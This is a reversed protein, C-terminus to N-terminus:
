ISPQRGHARDLETHDEHRMTRAASEPYVRWIYGVQPVDYWADIQVANWQAVDGCSPWKTHDIVYERRYAILHHRQSGQRFMDNRLEIEATSVAKASSELGPRMNLFADPLVIDDDDVCAVWPYVGMAYGKARGLGIHGQVGHLQHIAVPFGARRAAQTISSVCQRQWDLRPNHLLVHVDLM